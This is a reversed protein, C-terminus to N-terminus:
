LFTAVTNISQFSYRFIYSTILPIQHAQGQSWLHVPPLHIAIIKTRFYCSSAASILLHLNTFLSGPNITTHVSNESGCSPLIWSWLHKSQHTKTVRYLPKSTDSPSQAPIQPTEPELGLQLGFFQSTPLYHSLVHDTPGQALNRIWFHKSCM